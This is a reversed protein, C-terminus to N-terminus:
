AAREESREAWRALTTRRFYFKRGVKVIPLSGDSILAQVQWPSLGLFRGANKIDLLLSTDAGKATAQLTNADVPQHPDVDLISSAVQIFIL